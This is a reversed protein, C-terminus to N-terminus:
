PEAVEPARTLARRLTSMRQTQPLNAQKQVQMSHETNTQFTCALLLPSSWRSHCVPKSTRTGRCASFCLCVLEPISTHAQIPLVVVIDESKRAMSGATPLEEETFQHTVGESGRRLEQKRNEGPSNNIGLHTVGGGGVMFEFNSMTPPCWSSM